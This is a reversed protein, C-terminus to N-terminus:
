LRADFYMRANPNGNPGFLACTGAGGLSAAMGSVDFMAGYLSLQPSVSVWAVFANIATNYFGWHGAASLTLTPNARKLAKFPYFAIARTASSAQGAGFVELGSVANLTEFYRLCGALESAFDPLEWEPAVGTANPDLCLGLEGVEFVASGTGMGNSVGSTGLIDGAQWGATGQFTSGCALVICAEIGIGTDTLWTGSTDGPIVIQIIEDTNAAAPSFLAVYSRNKASNTLRVAYTGAPGKFLFRLISQRASGMGYRFDAVNQGEIRTRLYLYEGAALSADATTITVRARDKAGGPTVSQVRQATITGASTVRHVSLQDAVYYGDTTASTNNNQQSVQLGGNLWRNRRVFSPTFPLTVAGTTRDIVLAEKWSSGDPSVKFHFDDDGALGLEARGSFADQYLLSATDSASAKNIKLQHGAGDHNLLTADAALTLRNTTDATANIGLTAFSGSGGDGATLASWAAGDWVVAAGEDGIWAIWGEVPAYFMWAGDQFAAISGDHGSWAGTPSDGVIHREGDGPSSPPATLNRDLVALQVIADLARIAENHTVHKQSQAAMIYPLGLNPTDDV